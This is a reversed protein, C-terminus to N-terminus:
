RSAAFPNGLFGLYRRYLNALDEGKITELWPLNGMLGEGLKGLHRIDAANDPHPDGIMVLGALSLGRAQLAEISLLCHNITGLASRAALIVPLGLAQILDIMMKSRNLPVLLGGAGEVVLPRPCRPPGLRSLKLTIGEKAASQNPSLPRRLLYREPLVRDTGIWAAVRQSDTPYGTGSQIPKWYHAGWAKALIGSLVTKGIGTDTGAVFVGGAGSILGEPSPRRPSM